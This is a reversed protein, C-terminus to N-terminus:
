RFVFGCLQDMHFVLEVLSHHALFFRDLGQRLRNSPGARSRFSGFFASPDKIKSPGQTDSLGLEGARHGFKEEAFFVGQDASSMDSYM